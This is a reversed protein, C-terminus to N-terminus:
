KRRAAAPREDPTPGISSDIERLRRLVRAKALRVANPTITLLAATEASTLEEVTTLWFAEWTEDTFDHRVADLLQEVRTTPAQLGSDYPEWNQESITLLFRVASSGGIARLNRREARRYDAIRSHTVTYLWRRFSAKRGDDVFNALSRCIQFLVAQVVDDAGDDDLSARRCWHRILPEYRAALERWAAQDRECAAALMHPCTSDPSESDHKM